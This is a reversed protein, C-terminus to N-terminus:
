MYFALLDLFTTLFSSDGENEQYTDENEQYTDSINIIESRVVCGRVDLCLYARNLTTVPLQCVIVCGTDTHAVSDSQLEVRSMNRFRDFIRSIPVTTGDTMDHHSVVAADHLHQESPIPLRSGNVPISSGTTTFCRRVSRSDVVPQGGANTLERREVHTHRLRITSPPQKCVALAIINCDLESENVPMNRFQDFIRSIPVSTRDALDCETMIGATQIQHDAVTPLRMPDFSMGSKSTSLRRRVNRSIVMTQGGVTPAKRKKIGDEPPPTFHPLVDAVNITTPADISTPTLVVPNTIAHAIGFHEVLSIGCGADFQYDNTLDIAGKNYCLIPIDNIKIDYDVLAQKMWLKQQCEKRASVYEVETTPISLTTEKFPILAQSFRQILLVILDLLLGEVHGADVDCSSIGGGGGGGGDDCGGVRFSRM